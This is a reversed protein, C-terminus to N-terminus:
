KKNILFESPGLISFVSSSLLARGIEVDLQKAGIRSFILRSFEFEFDSVFVM